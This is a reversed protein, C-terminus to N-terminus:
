LAILFEVELECVKNCVLHTLLSVLPLWLTPRPARALSLGELLRRRPAYFGVPCHSRHALFYSCGLSLDLRARVPLRVAM